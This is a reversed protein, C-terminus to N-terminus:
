PMQQMLFNICQRFLHNRTNGGYISHNRLPYVLQRFDKDNEVLADVYAETNRFHVNDDASGHCLLLAGHLKGARSLPCDDYGSNEQPTRMYRETYVTDYFRWSTPPAIAIGCCFVPRGESMAMLANFGGFSWGWIAIRQPDVYPQRSLWLAAEVQDHAELKGLKLYTCKEFDVGRGGTGRNDICVCLFGQQCLYQELLAGRGAMGINWANKVQQNGPGGYQYMVVPYRKQPDFGVPKVMWGNLEIGEATTLSFLERRGTEYDKWRERLAHNDVLTRVVRGRRDCLTSVPPTDLDSWHHVFYRYDRSFSATSWGAQPTLCERRGNRRAVWVQQEVAGREHSAYYTDGSKEDYGYVASVEYAGDEVQRVLRGDLDYLYLHMYGTRDSPLLIHRDTIRINSMAEERVYKDAREEIIQQVQGTVPYAMYIRLCDQHRNMTYVAVRRADSTMVVRPVYGDADLPVPLQRSVGTSIDYCWVSVTSNQEGAFPYKYSYLPLSYEKVASEDYRIWVLHRGDATFVMSRDNGFEEENVWDPIGNIVQNRVGDRTVQVETGDPQRLFINNDRVFAIREGDPSFLPTQQAGNASLPTLRKDAVKYIYYTATLSHRYIRHTETQLLLQRGDASVRYDDVSPLSDGATDAADFLVGTQKGTLLSYRLIRRGDDSMAAYSEGDPLLNFSAVSQAAFQRSTIDKMELKKGATTTMTLLM